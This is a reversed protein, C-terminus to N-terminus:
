TRMSDGYAAMSHCDWLPVMFTGYQRSILFRFKISPPKIKYNLPLMDYLIATQKSERLLM